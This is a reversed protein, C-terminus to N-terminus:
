TDLHELLDCLKMTAVKFGMLRVWQTRIEPGGPYLPSAGQTTGPVVAFVLSPELITGRPVIHPSIDM